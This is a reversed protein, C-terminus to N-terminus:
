PDLVAPNSEQLRAPAIICFGPSGAVGARARAAHAGRQAEVVDARVLRTAIVRGEQAAGVKRKMFGYSAAWGTKVGGRWGWNRFELELRRAGLTM